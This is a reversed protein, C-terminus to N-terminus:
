KRLVSAHTGTDLWAFGRGHMEVVLRGRELYLRNLDTIELKAKASPSPLFLAFARKSLITSMIGGATFVRVM